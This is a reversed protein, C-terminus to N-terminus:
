RDGSDPWNAMDADRCIKWAGPLNGYGPALAVVHDLVSEDRIALGRVRPSEDIPLDWAIAKLSPLVKWLVTIALLPNDAFADRLGAYKLIEERGPHDGNQIRGWLAALHDKYLHYVQLYEIDDWDMAAGKKYPDVQVRFTVQYFVPIRKEMRARLVVNRSVLLASDSMNTVYFFTTGGAMRDAYVRERSFGPLCVDTICGNERLREMDNADVMQWSLGRLVDKARWSHKPSDDKKM